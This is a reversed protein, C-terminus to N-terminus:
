VGSALRDALSDPLGARRIRRQAARVPYRVRRWSLINTDTNLLMYAARPSRDRPQGVSGPNLLYRSGPDLEMSGRNGELLGGRVSTGELEFFTPLHTHGFFVLHESTREFSAEASEISMLYQDEDLPSGHCIGIEPTVSLPGQPLARLAAMHSPTMRQRTWEVSVLAVDNFGDSSELGAVVKDHNGRVSFVRGPLQNLADMVQNPAGGYGVVDGLMFTADLKKRRVGRLVAQLAEWNAHIDSVILCRM